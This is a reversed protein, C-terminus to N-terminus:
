IEKHWARNIPVKTEDGILEVCKGCYYDVFPVGHLDARGKNNVHNHFFKEGCSNCKFWSPYRGEGSIPALKM